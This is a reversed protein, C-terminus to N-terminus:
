AVMKISIRSAQMWRHCDIHDHMSVVDISRRPSVGHGDGVLADGCDGPVGGGVRSRRRRGPRGPRRRGPGRGPCGWRRGRPRCTPRRPPGPTPGRGGTRARTRASRGPRRSAAPRSRSSWGRGPSTGWRVRSPRASGPAAPRGARRLLRADLDAVAVPDDADGPGAAVPQDGDAAVLHGEGHVDGRGVAALLMVAAHPSRRRRCRPCGWGARRRRSGPRRRPRARRGSRRRCGPGPRGRPPPETRRCARPRRRGRRRPGSRAPPGSTGPRARLGPSPHGPQDPTAVGVLGEAAAVVVLEDGAAGQALAGLVGDLVTGDGGDGAEAGARDVLWSPRRM